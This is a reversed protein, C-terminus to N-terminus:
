PAPIEMTPGCIDEFDARHRTLRAIALSVSDAAPAAPAADALAMGPAGAGGQRKQLRELQKLVRGIEAYLPKLKIV